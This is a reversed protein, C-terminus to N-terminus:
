TVDDHKSLQEGCSGRLPMGEQMPGANRPNASDPKASVSKEEEAIRDRSKGVPQDAEQKLGKQRTGGVSWSEANRRATPVEELL